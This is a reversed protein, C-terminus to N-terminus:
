KKASPPAKWQLIEETTPLFMNSDRRSKLNKAREKEKELAGIYEGRKKIMFALALTPHVATKSNRHGDDSHFMATSVASALQRANADSIEIDGEATRKTLIQAFLGLLHKVLNRNVLPLRNLAETWFDLGTEIRLPCPPEIAGHQRALLIWSKLVSRPVLPKPLESLYIIIM